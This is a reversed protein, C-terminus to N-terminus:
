KLESLKNDALQLLALGENYANQIEALVDDSLPGGNAAEVYRDLAGQLKELAQVYTNHIDALAEPATWEKMEAIKNAVADKASAVAESDGQAISISLTGLESEVDAMMTNLKSMYDRNSQQEPTLQTTGSSACGAFLLVCLSMACAIVAIMKSKSSRM